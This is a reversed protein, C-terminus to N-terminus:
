ALMSINKRKDEELDKIQRLYDHSKKILQAYTLNLSKNMENLTKVQDELEHILSDDSYSENRVEEINKLKEELKHVKNSLKQNEKLLRIKEHERNDKELGLFLKAENLKKELEVIKLSMEKNAYLLLYNEKFFENEKDNELSSQQQLTSITNELSKSKKNLKM